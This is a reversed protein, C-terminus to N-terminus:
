KRAAGVVDVTPAHPLALIKVGWERNVLAATLLTSSRPNYGFRTEWDRRWELVSGPMAATPVSAYYAIAAESNPEAHIVVGLQKHSAYDVDSGHITSLLNSAISTPAAKLSAAATKYAADYAPSQVLPAISARVAAQLAHIPLRKVSAPVVRVTTAPLSQALPEIVAAPELEGHRLVRGSAAMQAAIHVVAGTFGELTALQGSPLKTSATSAEREIVARLGHFAAQESAPLAGIAKDVRAGGRERVILEVVRSLNTGRSLERAPESGAAASVEINSAMERESERAADQAALEEKGDDPLAARAAPTPAEALQKFTVKRTVNELNGVDNSDLPSSDELTAGAGRSTQAETAPAGDPQPPTAASPVAFPGGAPPTSGVAASAPTVVNAAAAAGAASASTAAPPKIASKKPVTLTRAFDRLGAPVTRLTQTADSQARAPPAGVTPSPQAEDKEDGQPAESARTRAMVKLGQMLRQGSTLGVDFRSDDNTPAAPVLSPLATAVHTMAQALFSAGDSSRDANAVSIMTDLVLSANSSLADLERGYVRADWIRAHRAYGFRLMLKPSHADSKSAAVQRDRENVAADFDARTVFCFGVDHLPTGAKADELVASNDLYRLASDNLLAYHKAAECGRVLILLDRIQDQLGSEEDAGVRRIEAAIAAANAAHADVRLTFEAAQHQSQKRVVRYFDSAVTIQPGRPGEFTARQGQLWMHRDRRSQGPRASEGRQKRVPSFRYVSVTVSAGYVWSPMIGSPQFLSLLPEVTRMEAFPELIDFAPAWAFEGLTDGERMIRGDRLAVEGATRVYGDSHAGVFVLRALGDQPNGAPSLYRLPNRLGQKAHLDAQVCHVYDTAQASLSVDATFTAFAARDAHVVYNGIDSNGLELCYSPLVPLSHNIINPLTTSLHRDTWLATAFAHANLTSRFYDVPQGTALSMYACVDERYSNFVGAADDNTAGPPFAALNPSVRSEYIARGVMSQMTISAGVIQMPTVNVYGITDRRYASVIVGANRQMRTNAFMERWIGGENTNGHLRVMQAVGFIFDCDWQSTNTPGCASVALVHYAEMFSVMTITTAPLIGCMNFTVTTPLGGNATMVTDANLAHYIISLAEGSHRATLEHPMLCSHTPLPSDRIDVADVGALRINAGRGIMPYFIGKVFWYAMQYAAATFYSLNAGMIHNMYTLMGSRDPYSGTQQFAALRIAPSTYPTGSGLMVSLSLTDLVAVAVYNTRNQTFHQGKCAGEATQVIDDVEESSFLIKPSEGTLDVDDATLPVHAFCTSFSTLLSTDHPLVALDYGAALQQGTVVPNVTLGTHLPGLQGGDNLNRLPRAM